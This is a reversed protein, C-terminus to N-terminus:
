SPLPLSRRIQEAVFRLYIAMSGDKEDRCFQEHAVSDQFSSASLAPM